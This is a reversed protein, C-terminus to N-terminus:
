RRRQRSGVGASCERQARRDNIVAADVYYGQRLVNGGPL